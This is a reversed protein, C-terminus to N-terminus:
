QNRLAKLREVVGLASADWTYHSRVIAMYKRGRDVAAVYRRKVQRLLEVLQEVSRPGYTPFPIGDFWASIHKAGSVVAEGDSDFFYGCGEPVIEPHVTTRPVIVPLGCAAAEQVPLNYGEGRSTCVYVNCARYMAALQRETYAGSLAWVRSKMRTNPLLGTDSLSYATTGLVLGAERDRSFAKEFADLLTELGKRFTPQFVYCFLFGSPSEQAGASATTVLTSPPIGVELGPGYINPDIGLPIVHTQIKLGSKKFTEANWRTPIWCEDYNANMLGIMDRHVRETEMMTYIVRYGTQRGVVPPIFTVRPANPKVQITQQKKWLEIAEPDRESPEWITEPGLAVQVVSSLRKLIERNAKSYGSKGSLIGSWEVELGDCAAQKGFAQPRRTDRYEHHLAPLGGAVGIKGGIQPPPVSATLQPELKQVAEPPGPVFEIPKAVASNPRKIPKKIHFSPKNLGEDAGKGKRPRDPRPFNTGFPGQNITM